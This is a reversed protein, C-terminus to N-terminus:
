FVRYSKVDLVESRAPNEGWRDGLLPVVVLSLLTSTILGGLIVTAMPSQIENGAEQGALSL